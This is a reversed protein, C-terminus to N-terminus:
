YDRLITSIGPNKRVMERLQNLCRYKQTKAQGETKFNLREVIIRYPIKEFYVMRLLEQCTGGLQKVLQALLGVKEEKALVEIMDETVAVAEPTDIIDDAPRTDRLKHLWRYRAVSYLYAKISHEIVMGKKVQQYFVLLTDQFLDQAEEASGNNKLVYSRIYPFYSLHLDKLARDERRMDGSLLAEIITKDKPLSM